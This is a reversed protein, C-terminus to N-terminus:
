NEYYFREVIKHFAVIDSMLPFSSSQSLGTFLVLTESIPRELATTMLSDRIFGFFGDDHRVGIRCGSDIQQKSSEPRRRFSM